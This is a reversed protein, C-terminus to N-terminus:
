GNVIWKKQLTPIIRWNKVLFEHAPVVHVVLGEKEFRDKEELTVITGESLKFAKMAAIIGRYEGDLNEFMIFDCEGKDKSYFVKESNKRLFLYILNELKHGAEDTFSTSVANILGRDM